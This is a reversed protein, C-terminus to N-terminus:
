PEHAAVMYTHCAGGGGWGFTPVHGLYSWHAGEEFFKFNPGLSAVWSSEQLSLSCEVRHFLLLISLFDGSLIFCINLYFLSLLLNLLEQAGWLVRGDRTGAMGSDGAASRDKPKVVGWHGQLLSERRDSCAQIPETVPEGSGLMHVM